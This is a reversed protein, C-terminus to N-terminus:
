WQNIKTKSGCATAHADCPAMLETSCAVCGICFVVLLVAACISKV